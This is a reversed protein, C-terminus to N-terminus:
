IYKFGMKKPKVHRTYFARFEAYANNFMVQSNQYKEYESQAFDIQLEIYYRYLEDWPAVLLMNKGNALAYDVYDELKHAVLYKMEDDSNKLAILMDGKRIEEDNLLIDSADWPVESNFDLVATMLSSGGSIVGEYDQAWGYFADLINNSPAGDPDGVIYYDGEKNTGPSPIDACNLCGKCNLYIANVSPYHTDICEKILRYEIYKIWRKKVDDSFSNPKLTDVLTIIETATM